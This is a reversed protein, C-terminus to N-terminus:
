VASLMNPSCNAISGERLLPQVLYYLLSNILSASYSDLYMDWMYMCPTDEFSLALSCIESLLTWMILHIFCM